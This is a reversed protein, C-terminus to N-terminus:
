PFLYTFHWAHVLETPLPPAEDGSVTKGDSEPNFYLLYEIKKGIQDRQVLYADYAAKEEPRGSKIAGTGYDLANQKESTGAPGTVTLPYLKDFRENKKNANMLHLSRIAYIGARMHDWKEDSLAFQLTRRARLWENELAIWTNNAEADGNEKGGAEY